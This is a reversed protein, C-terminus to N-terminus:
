LLQYIVRAAEDLSLVCANSSKENSVLPLM